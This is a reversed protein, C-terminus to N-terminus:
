GQSRAHDRLFLTAANAAQNIGLVARGDVHAAAIHTTSGAQTRAASNFYAVIRAEVNGTAYNGAVASITATTHALAEVTVM